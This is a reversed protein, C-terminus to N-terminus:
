KETLPQLGQKNRMENISSLPIEVAKVDSKLDEWSTALNLQKCQIAFVEKLEEITESVIKERHETESWFMASGARKHNTQAQQGAEFSKQKHWDGSKTLTYMVNIAFSDAINTFGAKNPKCNNNKIATATLEELENISNTLMVVIKNILNEM